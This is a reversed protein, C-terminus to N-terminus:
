NRFRYTVFSVLDRWMSFFVSIQAGSLRSVGNLECKGKLLVSVQKQGTYKKGKLLLASVQKQGTYEKRETVRIGTESRYVEM